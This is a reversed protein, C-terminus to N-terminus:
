GMVGHMNFTIQNSTTYNNILIHIERTESQTVEFFTSKMKHTGLFFHKMGTMGLKICNNLTSKKKKKPNTGTDLHELPYCSNKPIDLIVFHHFSVRADEM